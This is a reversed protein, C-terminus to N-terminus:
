CHRCKCRHVVLLGILAGIGLGIAVAHCPHKGMADEARQVEKERVRGFIEKGRELAGALRKRAERVEVGAVDATAAMLATADEALQHMDDIISQTQIKM